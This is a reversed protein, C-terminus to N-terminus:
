CEKKKFFFSIMGARPWQLTKHTTSTVIDLYLFPNACEQTAVLGSFHAMDCLLYSNNIHSIQRCRKYDLDQSYASYGCIILKPTFSTTDCELRDYYIYGNKDVNYPLSQYYVSTTSKKKKTTYFGHTLHCGSPIDLGMIRDNTELLVKYAILNSISWSYPQVNVGM